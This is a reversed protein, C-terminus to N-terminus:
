NAGWNPNNKLSWNYAVIIKPLYLSVENMKGNGWRRVADQAICEIYSGIKYKAVNSLKLGKTKVGSQVTGQGCNYALYGWIPNSKSYTASIKGNLHQCGYELSLKANGVHSSDQSAQMLGKYSGSSNPNGTSENTAFAFVLHPSLGNRKASDVLDKEYGFKIMNKKATVCNSAFGAITKHNVWKAPIEHYEFNMYKDSIQISGSNSSTSIKDADVLAKPRGFFVFGDDKIRSDIKWNPNSRASSSHAKQGNGIYIAVHGIGKYNSTSRNYFILDGPQAQAQDTFTYGGKEACQRGQEGSTAVIKIGGASYCAASFSSCDHYLVGNITQGRKGQDYKGKGTACLAVLEKAKAVIKDRIASSGETYGSDSSDSTGGASINMTDPPVAVQLKEVESYGDSTPSKLIDEKRAVIDAHDYKYINIDVNQDYPTETWDMVIGEDWIQNHLLLDDDKKSNKGVDAIAPKYPQPVENISNLEIYEDKTMLASQLDDLIPAATRELNSELIDYVQGIIPEFRSCNLCQDIQVIAGDNILDDKLCRICSYKDGVSQGGYYVCNINMRAGLRYVYRMMTTQLNEIQALRKEMRRSMEILVNPDVSSDAMPIPQNKFLETLSVLPRHISLEEIKKDVPYPDKNNVIKGVVTKKFNKIDQIKTLKGDYLLTAGRPPVSLDPYIPEYVDGSGNSSTASEGTFKNTITQTGGAQTTTVEENKYIKDPEVGVINKIDRKDEGFAGTSASTNGTVTDEDKSSKIYKDVANLLKQFSDSSNYIGKDLSDNIIDRRRFINKTTFGYVKAYSGLLKVLRKETEVFNSGPAIEIVNIYQGCHLGSAPNIVTKAKSTFEIKEPEKLVNYKSSGYKSTSTAGTVIHAYKGKNPENVINNYFNGPTDTATGTTQLMLVKISQIGKNENDPNMEKLVSYISPSFGVEVDLPIQEGIQDTNSISLSGSPSGSKVQNLFDTWLSPKKMMSYPCQKGTAENHTVVNTAPINYKKMLHLTLEIANAFAISYNDDKAVSIEIGLSNSNNVEPRKPKSVYKKGTHYARHNDRVIQVVGNKDTFYHASTKPSNDQFYKYHALANAGIGTNGTDHIVIYKPSNLDESYNAKNTIFKQVINM